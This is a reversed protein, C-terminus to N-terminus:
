LMNRLRKNEATIREHCAILMPVDEKTIQEFTSSQYIFPLDQHIANSPISQFPNVIVSKSQVFPNRRKKANYIFLSYDEIGISLSQYSITKLFNIASSLHAIYYQIESPFNLWKPIYNNLYEITTILYPIPTHLISLIITPLLDDATITTQHVKNLFTIALKFANCLQYGKNLPSCFENMKRLETGIVEIASKVITPNGLSMDLHHPAVFNHLKINTTLNTDLTTCEFNMDTEQTEIIPPWIYQYLTTTLINWLHRSYMRRQIPNMIFFNSAQLTLQRTIDVLLESRKQISKSKVLKPFRKIAKNLYSNLNSTKHHQHIENFIDVDTQFNSTLVCKSHQKKLQKELQEKNSQSQTNTPSSPSQLTQIGIIKSDITFCGLEPLTTTQKCFTHCLQIKSEKSTKQLNEYDFIGQVILELEKDLRKVLSVNWDIVKDLNWSWSCGCWRLPENTILIPIVGIPTYLVDGHEISIVHDVSGQFVGSSETLFTNLEEYHCTWPSTSPERFRLEQNNIIGLSGNLAMFSDSNPHKKILHGMLFEASLMQPFNLPFILTFSHQLACLIAFHGLETSLLQQIFLSSQLIPSNQYKDTNVLTTNHFAFFTTLLHNFPLQTTTLINPRKGDIPKSTISSDSTKKSFSPKRKYFSM